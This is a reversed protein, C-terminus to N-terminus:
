TDDRLLQIKKKNGNSQKSHVFKWFEGKNKRYSVNISQMYSENQIRRKERIKEKFLKHKMCYKSWAEKNGELVQKLCAYRGIVMERLEEDWGRVFCGCVIHKEGIVERAVRSCQLEKEWESM